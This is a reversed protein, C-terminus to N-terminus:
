GQPGGRKMPVPPRHRGDPGPTALARPIPSTGGVVAAHAALPPRYLWVGDASGDFRGVWFLADQGTWVPAEALSEPHPIREWTGTSPHFLAGRGCEEAFVADGLRAGQPTCDTFDVPVDPLAQWPGGAPDLVAAHLNQDWAILRQGDWVATAGGEPAAEDGAGPPPRPATVPPAFSAERRRGGDIGTLAGAVVLGLLLAGLGLARGPLDLGVRDPVQGSASGTKSASAAPSPEDLPLPVLEETEESRRSM